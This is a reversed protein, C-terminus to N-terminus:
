KRKGGIGLITLPEASRSFVLEDGFEPHVIEDPGDLFLAAERMKSQVVVSQEPGVLVRRLEYREGKPTYPERIVLQLDASELPLIKGGASRQAATSGAAPGVWFGSSKHEEARHGVRIRYRSTAAPSVHCFLADNLVRRSVVRGALSVQMRTLSRSTLRGDLARELAPLVAGARAGCFFGVSTQPDSNIGLIPTDLVRHSARLLTGDGGISVALAFRDGTIDGTRPGIRVARVGLSEFAAMVEDVARAHAEHVARLRKASPDGRRLMRRVREGYSEDVFAQWGSRKVLYAIEIKSITQGAARKRM